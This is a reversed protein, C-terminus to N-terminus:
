KSLTLTDTEPDYCGLCQKQVVAGLAGDSTVFVVTPSPSADNHMAIALHLADNTQIAADGAYHLLLREGERFATDSFNVVRFPRHPNVTGADRRLRKVIKNIQRRRVQGKRYYKMLVGVFEVLTLSSILVQTSSDAVLRHINVAGSQDRYFKWLANTDFYYVVGSIETPMELSGKQRLFQRCFGAYM